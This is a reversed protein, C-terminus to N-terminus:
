PVGVVSFGAEGAYGWYTVRLKYDGPPLKASDLTLVFTDSSMAGPALEATMERESCNEAIPKAQVPADEMTLVVWDFVKCPTQSLRVSFKNRNTLSVRIDLPIEQSASRMVTHPVELEARMTSMQFVDIQEGSYFYIAFVTAVLLVILLWVRRTM